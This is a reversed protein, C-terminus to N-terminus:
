ISGKKLLNEIILLGRDDNKLNERFLSAAM